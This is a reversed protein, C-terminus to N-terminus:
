ICLRRSEFWITKAIKSKLYLKQALERREAEVKDWGPFGVPKAKKKKQKRKEAKTLFSESLHYTFVAGFPPNPAIFYGDGQSAKGSGGLSRPIYWLAKRVPFLTAKSQMQSDSISRFVSMDDFIYFGRVM